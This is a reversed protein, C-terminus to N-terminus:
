ACKLYELCRQYYHPYESKVREELRQAMGPDSKSKALLHTYGIAEADYFDQILPFLFRIEIDCYPSEKRFRHYDACSSLLYQEPLIAFKTVDQMTSFAIQNEPNEILKIALNAYYNIFDIRNGGFIGCSVAKQHRKYYKRCWIWEEPIWGIETSHLLAEFAELRYHSGPMDAIFYEPNQALIPSTLIRDPLPKWLFVDTDVHIFPHRQAKYTYLKGLIWWAPDHGELLNLELSVHDFELGLGDILVKAGENDTCLSTERFHKKATEVSLIWALLHHKASYWAWSKGESM